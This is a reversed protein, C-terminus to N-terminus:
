NKEMTKIFDDAENISQNMAKILTNVDSEVSALDNKLSAIAQANLSHKLILVQDKFIALVPEMKAEARHMATILKNYQQKTASLKRLSNRRLSATSFQEAEDAWEAFLAASVDEIDAIRKSVAAAEDKSAEYESNLKNYVAELDGGKFETVASFQELTTKFQEKADQQTDRAKEVRHVMIDRKPIGMKELGSYYMSSCATLSLTVLALIFLRLSKVMFIEM